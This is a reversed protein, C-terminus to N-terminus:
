NFYGGYYSYIKEEYLDCEGTIIPVVSEPDIELVDCAASFGGDRRMTCKRRECSERKEWINKKTIECRCRNCETAKEVAM